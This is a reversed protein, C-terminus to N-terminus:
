SAHWTELPLALLSITRLNMNFWLRKHLPKNRQELVSELSYRAENNPRVAEIKVWRHKIKARRPPCSAFAAREPRQGFHGCIRIALELEM